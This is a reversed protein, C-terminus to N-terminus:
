RGLPRLEQGRRLEQEHEVRFFAGNDMLLIELGGAASARNAVLSGASQEGAGVLRDVQQQDFADGRDGRFGELHLEQGLRRDGHLLASVNEVASQVEDPM